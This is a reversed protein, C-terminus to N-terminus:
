KRSSERNVLPELRIVAAQGQAPVAARLRVAVGNHLEAQSFENGTGRREARGDLAEKLWTGLRERDRGCFLEALYAQAPISAPEQGNTKSALGTLERASRSAATIKGAEDLLLLPESICDLLAQPWSALLSEEEKRRRRRLASAALVARLELREFTALSVASGPLGAVLTGLLQGESELPFAVIRTVPGQARGMQPARGIARRAELARRWINALPESEIAYTWSDDGSRWHFDVSFGEDSKERSQQLAGIVAFAAGPGDGDALTGTCSEVLNSLLAEDSSAAAHQALYRRVAGLDEKRQRTIRQEEELGLALALEAAVSEVHERSFAPQKGKSGALIVGKLQEKGEITVWLAHRLGGLLGLIPNPPSAELDQEVTNGRLLLEEPLPPEVSLHAWEQPTELNVRDWVIGHFGAINENPPNANGDAELWVGIRGPSGQQKLVRLAERLLEKRSAGDLAARAVGRGTWEKEAAKARIRM